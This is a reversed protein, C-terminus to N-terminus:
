VSEMLCDLKIRWKSDAPRHTPRDTAVASTTTTLAALGDTGWGHVGSQVPSTSIGLHKIVLFLANSPSHLWGAGAVVDSVSKYGIM